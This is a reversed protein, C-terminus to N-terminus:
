VQTQAALHFLTKARYEGLLREVLGQDEIEGGVATVRDTWSASIPTVPVTDRVLVVVDAGLRALQDTLHAGLFGTAGTVAVPRHRWFEADPAWGDDPMRGTERRCPATGVAGRGRLPIATATDTVTAM